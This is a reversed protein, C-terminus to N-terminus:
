QEIQDLGAPSTYRVLNHWKAPVMSDCDGNPNGSYSYHRQQLDYMAHNNSGNDEWIKEGWPTPQLMRMDFQVKWFKDERDQLDVEWPNYM